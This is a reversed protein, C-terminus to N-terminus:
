GRLSRRVSEPLPEDAELAEDPRDAWRSWVRDCGSCWLPTRCVRRDDEARRCLFFGVLRLAAGCGPCREAGEVPVSM